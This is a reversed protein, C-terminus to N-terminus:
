AVLPSKKTILHFHKEASGLYKGGNSMIQEQTEYISGPLSTTGNEQHETRGTIYVTAGDKALSIM